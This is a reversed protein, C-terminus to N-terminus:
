SIVQSHDMWEQSFLSSPLNFFQKSNPKTEKLIFASPCISFPFCESPLPVVTVIWILPLTPNCQNLVLFSTLSHNSIQFPKPKIEYLFYSPTQILWIIQWQSLCRLFVVSPEQQWTTETTWWPLSPMTSSLLECWKPCSASQSFVKVLFSEGKIGELGGSWQIILGCEHEDQRCARVPGRLLHKVLRRPLGQDLCTSSRNVM